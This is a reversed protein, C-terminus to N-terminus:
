PTSSAQQPTALVDRRLGAGYPAVAPITVPLQGTIPAYGLLARAAARQSVPMGGWTVLYASTAPLEAAIYPNSFTALIVKTGSKQLGDILAAMGDPAALKATASSAGFYSSVIAVDAGQAARLANEV